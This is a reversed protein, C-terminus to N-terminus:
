SSLSDCYVTIIFSVESLVSPLAPQSMGYSSPGQGAEQLWCKAM